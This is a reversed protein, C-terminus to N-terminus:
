LRSTKCRLQDRCFYWRQNAVSMEWSKACVAVPDTRRENIWFEEVCCACFVLVWVTAPAVFPVGYDAIPVPTKLQDGEEALRCHRTL